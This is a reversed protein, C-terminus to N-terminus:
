SYAPEKEIRAKAAMINSQDIERSRIGDYFNRLSAELIAESSVVDEYGRCAFGIRTSLERESIVFTSGDDATVSFERGPDQTELPVTKREIKPVAIQEEGKERLLARTTRYIIFDKAVQYYGESMMLREIEDQILEIHLQTGTQTLEVARNVVRNTLLNVSDIISQPTPGEINQSARFAREIAAAIKLPKFRVLSKGDRRLIKINRPSDDRNNKREERYSIYRRGIELHGAELLQQEVIDQIGEVTLCAGKRAIAFAGEIVSDTVDRVVAHLERSLPEISPIEKTARVAGEIAKEIRDRRFPVLMGNRKVVTCDDITLEGSHRSLSPGFDGESHIAGAALHSATPQHSGTSTNGEMNWYSGEKIMKWDLGGVFQGSEVFACFAKAKLKVACCVGSPVYVKGM